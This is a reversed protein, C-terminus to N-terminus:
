RSARTSWSKPRLGGFFYPWDRILGEALDLDRLFGEDGRQLQILVLGDRVRDAALAVGDM